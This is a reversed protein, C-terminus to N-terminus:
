LAPLLNKHSGSRLPHGLLPRKLGAIGPALASEQERGPKKIAFRNWCFARLCFVRDLKLFGPRETGRRGQAIRRDSRPRMPSIGRIRTREHSESGRESCASVHRAWGCAARIEIAARAQAVRKGPISGSLRLFGVPFAAIVPFSLLSQMRGSDRAFCEGHASAHGHLDGVGALLGQAVTSAAGSRRPNGEM